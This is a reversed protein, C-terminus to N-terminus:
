SRKVDRKEIIEILRYRNYRQVFVPYGHLAGVGALIASMCYQGFAAAGVALLLSVSAGPGHRAENKMTELTFRKLNRKTPIGIHYNSPAHGGIKGITGVLFKRFQPVGIHSYIDFELRSPKNQMAIEEYATDIGKQRIEDNLYNVLENM